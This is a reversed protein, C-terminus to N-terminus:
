PSDLSSDYAEIGGCVAVSHANLYKTAHRAHPAGPPRTACPRCPIPAVPPAHGSLGGSAEHWGRVAVSRADAYKGVVDTECTSPRPRTSGNDLRPTHTPDLPIDWAGDHLVSRVRVAGALRTARRTGNARHSVACKSEPRPSTRYSKAGKVCVWTHAVDLAIWRAMTRM